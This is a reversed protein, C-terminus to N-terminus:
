EDPDRVLVLRVDRVNTGTPGTMLAAGLGEFYSFSDSRELFSAADLSASEGRAITAEDAIAGAAPSNGDLGDTGSSLVVWQSPWRADSTPVGNLKMACRLVTEANRGGVGQGRVPCSFEAGSLLCVPKAKGGAKEWLARVRSLLLDCGVEIEEENIDTAIEMAFGLQEAKKAAAHLATHNDLLVYHTRLRGTEAPQPDERNNIARLVSKPLSMSLDYREVVEQAESANESPELTPGSAVSAEDGPNTDSVILTIQNTQPASRSLKGGKVASFTRRVANVEAIAAGCSVLQRNAERLDAITIRDDVPLEFMSSGGGSILFIVLAGPEVTKLLNLSAQAAALSEATPLPHGSRFERWRHAGLESFEPYPVGSIIGSRLKDGLVDSLGAAMAAAAKGIAVAYISCGSVDIETERITLLSDKLVVDSNVARRADAARLAANFIERAAQQLNTRNM